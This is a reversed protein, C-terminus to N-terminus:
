LSSWFVTLTQENYIHLKINYLLWKHGFFIKLIQEKYGYIRYLRSQLLRTQTANELCQAIQLKLINQVCM